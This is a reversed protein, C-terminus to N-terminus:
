AGLRARMEDQMAKLTAQSFRRKFQVIVGALPPIDMVLSQPQGHAPELDTKLWASGHVM